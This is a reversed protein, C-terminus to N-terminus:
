KGVIQKCLLLIFGSLTSTPSIGGVHEDAEEARPPYQLRQEVLLSWGNRVMFFVVAMLYLKRWTRHLSPDVQKYYARNVQDVLGYMSNYLDV